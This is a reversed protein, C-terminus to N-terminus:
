VHLRKSPGLCWTQASASSVAHLLNAEAEDLFPKALKAALAAKLVDLCSAPQM